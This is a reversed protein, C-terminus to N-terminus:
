PLAAPVVAEDEPRCVAPLCTSLRRADVAHLCTFRSRYGTLLAAPQVLDVTAEM